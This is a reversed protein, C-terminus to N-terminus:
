YVIYMLTLYPCLSPQNQTFSTYDSHWILNNQGETSLSPWASTLGSIKPGPKEGRGISSSKTMLVIQCRFSALFHPCLHSQHFCSENNHLGKWLPYWQRDHFSFQVVCYVLSMNLAVIKNVNAQLCNATFPSSCPSPPIRRCLYVSVTIRSM